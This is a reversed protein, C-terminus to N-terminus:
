RVGAREVQQSVRVAAASAAYRRGAERPVRLSLDV